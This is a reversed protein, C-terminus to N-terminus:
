GLALGHDVICRVEMKLAIFLSHHLECAREDWPPYTGGVGHTGEAYELGKTSQKQKKINCHLIELGARCIKWNQLQHLRQHHTLYIIGEWRRGSGCVRKVWKITTYNIKQTTPHGRILSSWRLCGLRTRLSRASHHIRRQRVANLLLRIISDDGLLALPGKSRRLHDRTGWLCPRHCLLHLQQQPQTTIIHRQLLLLADGRDAEASRRPGLVNLPHHWRWVLRDDSFISTMPRSATRRLGIHLVFSSGNGSKDRIPSSLRAKASSTDPGDCLSPIDCM